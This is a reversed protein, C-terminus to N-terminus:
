FELMLRESVMLLEAAGEPIKMEAEWGAIESVVNATHQLCVSGMGPVHAKEVCDLRIWWLQNCIEDDQGLLRPVVNSFWHSRWSASCAPHRDRHCSDEDHVVPPVGCLAMRVILLKEKMRGIIGIDEVTVHRLINSDCAWSALSVTPKALAVVAPKVLNSM